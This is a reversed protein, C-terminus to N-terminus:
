MASPATYLARAGSNRSVQLNTVATRSGSGASTGPIDPYIDKVGSALILKRSNHTTGKSDTVAFGEDTQKASTAQSRVLVAVNYAEIEQWAKRRYESPPMGDALTVTHM